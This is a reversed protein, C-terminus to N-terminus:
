YQRFTAMVHAHDLQIMTTANPSLASTISNM